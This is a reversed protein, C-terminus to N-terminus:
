RRTVEADAVMAQLEALTPMADSCGLRAAVFAGAANGYEACRSPEWGALLGHVLAAGFADGAGLGCVVDIRRPAVTTMGEPTALLVGDAGLKVVALEVGLDLLRRAGEDPDATGVAVEVEARNGVAVTVQRLLRVYEQRATRPSAWFMPRWDLDLVTFRGSGRAPRGRADLMDLHTRRSPDVSLGTGTVWLVPVDRVLDWPVDAATLTLDPAIPQRYFLLPPDDPPDLACFVVPTQLDAATGVYRPDVGYRVLAQRVFAGFGDPGVKTLVASRRGLRAAGVAVNTATGGLFKAFSTVDALPVGSQQPYLDVGVRGVTLVEVPGPPALAEVPGPPALAEVPGDPRFTGDSDTEPRLTGDPGTLSSEGEGAM